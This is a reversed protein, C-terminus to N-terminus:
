HIYALAEALHRLVRFESGNVREPLHWMAYKLNESEFYEMVFFPLAASDVYEYVKIIGPHKLKQTLTAEKKFERIKEPREANKPSLQKLAFVQDRPNRAKWVTGISGDKIKEVIEYGKFIQGIM